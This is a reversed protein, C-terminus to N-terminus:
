ATWRRMAVFNRRNRSASPQLFMFFVTAMKMKLMNQSLAAACFTLKKALLNQVFDAFFEAVKCWLAFQFISQITQFLGYISSDVQDFVQM